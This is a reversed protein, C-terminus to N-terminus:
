KMSWHNTINEDDIPKYTMKFNERANQGFFISSTMQESDNTEWIHIFTRCSRVFLTILCFSTRENIQKNKRTLSTRLKSEVSWIQNDTKHCAIMKKEMREKQQNNNISQQSDVRERNITKNQNTQNPKTRNSKPSETFYMCRIDDSAITCVKRRCSSTINPFSVSQCGPWNKKERERQKFVKKMKM